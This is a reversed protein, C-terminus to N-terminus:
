FFPRRPGDISRAILSTKALGSCTPNQSAARRAGAPSFTSQSSNRAPELHTEGVKRMGPKNVYFDESRAPDMVRFCSHIYSPAM